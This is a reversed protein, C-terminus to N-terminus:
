GLIGMIMGMDLIVKEDADVLELISQLEDIAGILEVLIDDKDVRKNGCTTQGKDGTKTTIM